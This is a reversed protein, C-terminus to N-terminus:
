EINQRPIKGAHLNKLEKGPRSIDANLSQASACFAREQDIGRLSGSTNNAFIQPAEFKSIACLHPDHGHASREHSLLIQLRERALPASRRRRFPNFLNM